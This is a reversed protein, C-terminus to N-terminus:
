DPRVGSGMVFFRPTAIVEVTTFGARELADRLEGPTRDVQIVRFTRGDAVTRIAVGDRAVPDHDAAGAQPDAKADVFVFRGGPRLWRMVLALFAGLREESVHRLWAGCFVADVQRDPEDWADRVHIHARLRHALLRDRARDLPEPNIDYLSLEGKGALLPSWWGTGAALEVIVGALPQRDLWLTVEDLEAQWPLDLAAGRAYRGQRLYWDDYQPTHAAYYAAMEADLESRGSPLGAQALTATTTAPTTSAATTTLAPVTSALTTPASAPGPAVPGLAAAASRDRLAARLRFRLFSNDQARELCDPCLGAWGTLDGEGSARWPRGCWLCDFTARYPM